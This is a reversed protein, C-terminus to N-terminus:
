KRVFGAKRGGINRPAKRRMEGTSARERREHAFRVEGCLEKEITLTQEACGSSAEGFAFSAKAFCLSAVSPSQSANTAKSGPVFKAPRADSRSTTKM